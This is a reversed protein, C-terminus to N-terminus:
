GRQQTGGCEGMEWKMRSCGGDEWQMGVGAAAEGSCGGVADRCLGVANWQMGVAWWQM